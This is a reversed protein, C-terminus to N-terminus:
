VRRGTAIRGCPRKSRGRTRSEARRRNKESQAPSKKKGSTQQQRAVNLLLGVTIASAILSTRGYSLLPLTLGKTPIAGTVVAINIAAPLAILLTCGFALLTAFRSTSNRAIRSGAILLWTFGGIVLLVGILGLEEAVASLIFDTHAEPLYGLKQRGNGLGVGMIGGRAFAVFSQVLQFGGAQSTEWAHRFATVRAMAYPNMAIYGGVLTIGAFGPIVFLRLPAGAVFLLAVSLLLTIIANGFDPQLLLLAAPPLAIILAPLWDRPASIPRSDKPSLHAALALVTALKMLEVPQFSFGIGPIALWRQAGNKEIGLFFTAALLLLSFCWLPVAIQRIRQLPVLCTALLLAFGVCVAGIHRLFIPSFLEGGLHASTSFLIVIGMGTLLAAASAVGIDISDFFGSHQQPSAKSSV